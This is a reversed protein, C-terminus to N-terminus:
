NRNTKARVRFIQTAGGSLKTFKESNTSDVKKDKYTKFVLRFKSKLDFDRGETVCYVEPYMKSYVYEFINKFHCLNNRLKNYFNEELCVYKYFEAQICEKWLMDIMTQKNPDCLKRELM